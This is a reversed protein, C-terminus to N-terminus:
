GTNTAELQAAYRAGGLNRRATAGRAEIDQAGNPAATLTYTNGSTSEGVLELSGDNTTNVQINGSSDAPTDLVLVEGLQPESAVIVDRLEAGTKFTGQPVNDVADAKAAKYAITLQQKMGSDHAKDQQGLFSPAAVFILIGIILIVVLLEVLTFGKEERIRNFV